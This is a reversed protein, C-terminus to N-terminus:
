HAPTMRMCPVARAYAYTGVAHQLRAWERNALLGLRGHTIALAVERGPTDGPLALLPAPLSAGAAAVLLGVLLLSVGGLRTRVGLFRLPRAVSVMGILGVLLGLYVVIVAM